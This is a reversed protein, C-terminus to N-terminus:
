PIEEVGSPNAKLESDPLPITLYISRIGAYEGIQEGTGHDSCGAALRLPHSPNPDPM